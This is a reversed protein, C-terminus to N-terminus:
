KGTATPEMGSWQNGMSALVPSSTTSMMPAPAWCMGVCLLVCCCSHPYTPRLAHSLPAPSTAGRVHICCSSSSSLTWPLHHPRARSDEGCTQDADRRGRCQQWSGVCSTHFSPLLLLLLWTLWHHMLVSLQLLEHPCWAGVGSDDAM